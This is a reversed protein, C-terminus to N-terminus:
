RLLDKAVAPVEHDDIFRVLDLIVAGRRISEQLLDVAIVQQEERRSRQLVVQALEVVEDGQEAGALEAGPLFELLQVERRTVRLRRFVRLRQLLQGGLHHDPRAARADGERELQRWSYWRM